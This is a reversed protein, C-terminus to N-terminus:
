VYRILYNGNNDISMQKQVEAFLHLNIAENLLEKDTTADNVIGREYEVSFQNSVRTALNIGVYSSQGVLTSSTSGSVSPIGVINPEAGKRNLGIATENTFPQINIPGFTDSLVSAIKSPSNLGEGSMVSKGNIKFNIKEKYQAQSSLPGIGQQTDSGGSVYQNDNLAKMMVVRGLLKNDFGNVRLSVNQKAQNGAALAAAVTNQNPVVVVDHEIETFLAGKFNARLKKVLDMDVIEDAFLEVPQVVLGGQKNQTNGNMMKAYSKQDLEIIVRLNRYISTDLHSVAELMPFCKKLDLSCRHVTNDRASDRLSTTSEQATTESATRGDDCMVYGASSKTLYRNVARNDANNNNVNRFALYRNAERLECLKVGGDMLRINKILGYLGAVSAIETSDDAIIAGFNVIRLNTDYVTDPKDLRFEIVNNSSSRPDLNEIKVKTSYLSSM